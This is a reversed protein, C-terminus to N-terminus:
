HRVDSCLVFSFGIPDRIVSDTKTQGNMNINEKGETAGRRIICSPLVGTSEILLAFGSYSFPPSSSLPFLFSFGENACDNDETM